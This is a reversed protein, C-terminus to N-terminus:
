PGTTVESRTFTSGDDSATAKQDVTSADDNFLNYASSTQTSKNKWAKFLYGIKGSLSLTAAPTGQGPEAYTDTALADVVEANVDAKAQTGLAAVTAVEGAVSGVAGYVSSVAGGPLVVYTSNGDPTTTWDPSISCQKSTGIYQTILRAQGAGTGGTIVLLCGDYAYNNASATSQNLRATSSTALFLDGSTVAFGNMYAGFTGDTLHGSLLEDWVADAIEAIADAALESAGIADAAISTATIGGSAVSGVSGTVNGGVNGTVSGVAGTVSAITVDSAVKADTIADSAIASATIAGSAFTAADIAGDAIVAATIAGSGWATGGANVVNVGIQAASTSVSSGAIHSTNVEPRGSAFTGASGGFNVVNVGIQASSTSVASGSIHSTNVEPRGSAFTGASGGFQTVNVKVVREISFYALVKVVALSDVTEDPSLVVVYESGAAWFGADTNDSLDIAVAHLGTISDFPSTMTIGSASTRQTASGNKYILLDAAEFASSPAVAAGSAAHTTFYFYITSSANFSGLHDAM